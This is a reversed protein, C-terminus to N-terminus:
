GLTLGGQLRGVGINIPDFNTSNVSVQGVGVNIDRISINIDRIGGAIQDLEPVTLEVPEAILTQM